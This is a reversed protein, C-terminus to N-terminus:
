NEGGKLYIKVINQNISISLNDGYYFGPIDAEPELEDGLVLVQIREEISDFEFTITNPDSNIEIRKM